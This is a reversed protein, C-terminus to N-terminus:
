TVRGPIIQARIIFQATVPGGGAVGTFAITHRGRGDSGAGVIEDTIDIEHDSLIAAADGLDDGVQTGNVSVDFEVYEGSGAVFNSEKITVFGGSVPVTAQQNERTNLVMTVNEINLVNDGITLYMNETTAGGFVLEYPGAIIENSTTKYGTAFVDVSDVSEVIQRGQDNIERDISRLTLTANEGGAGYSERAGMVWYLDNIDQLTIPSGAVNAREIYEVRVKDGPLFNIRQQAVRVQLDTVPDVHRDLWEAAADYLYNATRLRSTNSTGIPAIKKFNLVRTIEGYLAVSAADRLYYIDRGDPGTETQRVYPTPGRDSQSLDGRSDGDGASLPVIKNVVESSDTSIKITQLPIVDSGRAPLPHDGELKVVRYGSDNGFPAFDVSKSDSPDLRMHAGINELVEQLAKLVSTGDFRATISDTLSSISVGWGAPMIDTILDAIDENDYKLGLSTTYNELLIMEDAGRATFRVGEPTVDYTVDDIVFASVKRKAVSESEQWWIEVVRKSLLVTQARATFDMHLIATEIEVRGAGDLVREVSARVLPLDSNDIQTTYTPDYVECWLQIM